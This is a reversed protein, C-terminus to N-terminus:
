KLHERFVCGLKAETLFHSRRDLRLYPLLELAGNRKDFRNDVALRISNRYPHLNRVLRAQDFNTIVAPRLDLGALCGFTLLNDDGSLRYQDVPSVANGIHFGLWPTKFKPFHLNTLNHSVLDSQHGPDLRTFHDCCAAHKHQVRSEIDM